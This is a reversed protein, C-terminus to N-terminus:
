KITTKLDFRASLHQILLLPPEARHGCKCANVHKQPMEHLERCTQLSRLSADVSFNRCAFLQLHQGGISASTTWDLKIVSQRPFRKGHCHLRQCSHIDTVGVQVDSHASIVWRDRGRGQLKNILGKTYSPILWLFSEARNGLKKGVHTKNLHTM